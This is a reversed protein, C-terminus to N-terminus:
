KKDAITYAYNNAYDEADRIVSTRSAFVVGEARENGDLCFINRFITRTPLM